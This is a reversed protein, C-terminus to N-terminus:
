EVSKPSQSLSEKGSRTTKVSDSMEVFDSILDQYPKFVNGTSSNVASELSDPEQGPTKVPSKVVSM